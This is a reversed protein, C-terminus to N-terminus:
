LRGVHCQARWGESVMHHSRSHRVHQNLPDSAGAALNQAAVMQASASQAMQNAGQQWMEQCHQPSRM